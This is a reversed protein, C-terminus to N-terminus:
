NVSITEVEIVNEKDKIAATLFDEVYKDGQLGRLIAISLSVVMGLIKELLVTDGCKAVVGLVSNVADQAQKEVEEATLM